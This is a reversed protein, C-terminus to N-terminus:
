GIFLGSPNDQTFSYHIDFYYRMAGSLFSDSHLTSYRVAVNDVMKRFGITQLDKRVQELFYDGLAPVKGGLIILSPNVICILNGLAMALEKAMQTLLKMATPDRYLAARGLDAFTVQEPPSLFSSEGLSAARRGINHESILAELCGHNGCVCLPGEPDVSYHGFQTISGSAKGLMNGEIFLTAGIGRNFNIFAFNNETLNTFIKEAYAFCATDELFAVPYEPFATQLLPFLKEDGMAPLSLTTSYVEEKVADIMASVVICIGLIQKRDYQSLISDYFCRRSVTIYTDKGEVKESFCCVPAGALDILYLQVTDEMWHLVTVYYRGSRVYLNNPRRGVSESESVGSDVIFEREILEDILTSVTTKSLKTHKALAARSIGPNNYISSYLRKMNSNKILQQTVPRM